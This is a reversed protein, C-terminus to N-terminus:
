KGSAGLTAPLTEDVGRKSRTEMSPTVAVIPLAPYELAVGLLAAIWTRPRGSDCMRPTRREATARERSGSTVHVGRRM